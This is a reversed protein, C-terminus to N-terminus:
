FLSSDHTRGGVMGRNGLVMVILELHNEEYTGGYELYCAQIAIDCGELQLCQRNDERMRVCNFVFVCM